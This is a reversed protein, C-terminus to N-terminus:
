VIVAAARLSSGAEHWESLICSFSCAHNLTIQPRFSHFIPNSGTAEKLNKGCGALVAGVLVGREALRPVAGVALDPASVPRAGVAGQAVAVGRPARARKRIREM